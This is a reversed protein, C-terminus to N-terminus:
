RPIIQDPDAYWNEILVQAQHGHQVVLNELRRIHREGCVFLVMDQLRDSICNFWYEERIEWYKQEEENLLRTAEPDLGDHAGYGIKEIIEETSPIGLAKRQDSDLDCLIHTIGLDRAVRRANSDVGHYKAIAEESLEEALAKIRLRTAENRLYAAFEEVRCMRNMKDTNYICQTWHHTGIIYLMNRARIGRSEQCTM